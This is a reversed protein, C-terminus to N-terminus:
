RAYTFEKELGSQSVLQEAAKIDKRSLADGLSASLRQITSLLAKVDEPSRKQILPMMEQALANYAQLYQNYRVVDQKFEDAEREYRLSRGSLNWKQQLDDSSIEKLDVRKRDAMMQENEQKLASQKQELRNRWAEINDVRDLLDSLKVGQVSLTEQFKVLEATKDELRYREAQVSQFCIALILLLCYQQWNLLKQKM